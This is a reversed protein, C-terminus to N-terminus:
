VLFYRTPRELFCTIKFYISIDGHASVALESIVLILTGQFFLSVCVYVCVRGCVCVCVYVGVCARVCGCVGVCGCVCVCVCVCVCM